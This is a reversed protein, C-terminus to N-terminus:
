LIYLLVVVKKGHGTGGWWAISKLFLCFGWCVSLMKWGFSSVGSMDRTNHQIMKHLSHFWQRFQLNSEKRSDLMQVGWGLVQVKPFVESWGETEKYKNSGWVKEVKVLSGATRCQWSPLLLRGLNESLGQLQVAQYFAKSPNEQAKLQM